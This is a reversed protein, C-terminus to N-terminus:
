FEEVSNNDGRMIYYKRKTEKTGEIPFLIEGDEWGLNPTLDAIMNGVFYGAALNALNYSVWRHEHQGDYDFWYRVFENSGYAVCNIYGEHENWSNNLSLLVDKIKDDSEYVFLGSWLSTRKNSLTQNCLKVNKSLKALAKDIKSMSELRTKVEIIARVASPTVIVLDGEKFLTYASKDIILLDIQSSIKDKNCVFGTCISLDEPLHRELTKKLIIEKYTGETLWHRGGILNRVRDKTSELSSNISEWYKKYNQEVM